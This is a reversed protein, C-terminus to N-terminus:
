TIGFKKETEGFVKDFIGLVKDLDAHEITLPPILQLRNHYYGGKEFVLGEAVCQQLVYTSEDAAPEKTTRDKVLEIGTYIGKM